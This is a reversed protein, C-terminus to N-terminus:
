IQPTNEGILNFTYYEVGLIFYYGPAPTTFPPITTTIPAETTTTSMTVDCAGRVASVVEAELGFGLLFIGGTTISAQLM